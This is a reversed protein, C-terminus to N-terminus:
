DDAPMPKQAEKHQSAPGTITITGQEPVDIGGGVGHTRELVDYTTEARHYTRGDGEYKTVDEEHDVSGPWIDAQDLLSHIEDFSDATLTKEAIEVTYGGGESLESSVYNLLNSSEGGSTQSQENLAM